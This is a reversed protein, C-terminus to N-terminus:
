FGRALTLLTVSKATGREKLTQSCESATRGTTLIDDILLLSKNKFASGSRVEFAGTVNKSRESKKLRAQSHVAKKRGLFPSLEAWGMSKSLFRSLLYAQNFGRENKKMSDMPVSLIGDFSRNKLHEQIFDQLLGGLFHKLSKREGFKYIHLLEKIKGEYYAVAYAEDFSFNEHLCEPCKVAQIGSAHRGCNGCFPPRIWQIQDRCNSCLGPNSAADLPNECIECVMPFVLSSAYKLVTNFM